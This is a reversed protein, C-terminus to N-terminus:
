SVDLSVTSSGSEVELEYSESPPVYWFVGNEDTEGIEAGDVSITASEVPADSETENVQVRVPGDSSTENHTLELGDATETTSASVPLTEVNLEQVEHFVQGLNSDLFSTLIGQSHPIEVRYLNWPDGNDNSFSETGDETAWPYLEEFRDFAEGQDEYKNLRDVDRNDFRTTEVVYTDDVMTQLRYGADSTQVEISLGDETGTGTGQETSAALARVTGQQVALRERDSRLDKQVDTDISYGIVEDSRRMIEEIRQELANADNYNRILTQLLRNTSMEGAAHARVAERERRELKDTRDRVNELSANIMEDRESDDVTEFEEDFLVVWEYENRIDDDSQALITGLSQGYEVSDNRTPDLTLRNTTDQIPVPEVSQLLPLEHQEEIREQAPGPAAATVTMAPLSVVLLLALLAPIANTM